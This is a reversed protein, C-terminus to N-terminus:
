RSALRIGCLNISRIPKPLGAIKKTWPEPDPMSDAKWRVASISEYTSPAIAHVDTKDAKAAHALAHRGVQHLGAMADGDVVARPPPAVREGGGAGAHRGRRGIGGFPVDDHGHHGVIMRQLRH